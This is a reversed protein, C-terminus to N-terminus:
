NFCGPEGNNMRLEENKRGCEENMNIVKAESVLIVYYFLFSIAVGGNLYWGM